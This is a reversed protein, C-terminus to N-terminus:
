KGNIISGSYAFISFSSRVKSSAADSKPAFGNAVKRVTVKGQVIGPIIAPESSTNIGAVPSYTIGSKSPPPLTRIIPLTKYPSNADFISQGTADATAIANNSTSTNGM